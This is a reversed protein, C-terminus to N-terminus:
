HLWGHFSGSASLPAAIELRALSRDGRGAADEGVGRVRELCAKFLPLPGIGFFEKRRRVGATERHRKGSLQGLSAKGGLAQFGRARNREFLLRISEGDRFAMEIQFSAYWPRSLFREVGGNLVGLGATGHGLEILRIDGEVSLQQLGARRPRPYSPLLRASAAALYTLLAIASDARDTSM